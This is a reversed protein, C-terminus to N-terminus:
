SGGGGKDSVVMVGGGLLTAKATLGTTRAVLVTGDAVVALAVDEECGGVGSEFVGGM